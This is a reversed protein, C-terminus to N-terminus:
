NELFCSSLHTTLPRPVSEGRWAAADLSPRAPCNFSKKRNACAAQFVGWCTPEVGAGAPYSRSHVQLRGAGPSHIQGSTNFLLNM